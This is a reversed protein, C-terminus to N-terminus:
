EIIKKERLKNKILGALKVCDFPEFYEVNKYSGLTERAYECDAAIITSNMAAAEKLPLGVTEIFSPFVLVSKSYWKVMEEPTLRGTFTINIKDKDILTKCEAPLSERSCTLVLSLRSKDELKDWVENCAKLLTVHNKYLATNAPYFLITQSEPDHREANQFLTLNVEASKVSIIEEKIKWKASMVRKIWNAQVYIHSARKLSSKFIRGIVNQYLWMTRSEFLSFRRDALPLINHYYVEQTINRVPFTNNQLSLIKDPKYEKVLRKVHFFDFCLRHIRSKKVWACKVFHVNDCDEYDLKSVVVIYSNAKDSKFEDIFQNLVTLAGGGREAAVDIVLIKM